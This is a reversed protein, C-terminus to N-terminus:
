VLPSKCPLPLAVYRFIHAGGKWYVLFRIFLELYVCVGNSGCRRTKSMIITNPADLVWRLLGLCTAVEILMVRVMVAVACVTIAM